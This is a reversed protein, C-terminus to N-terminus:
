KGGLIGEKYPLIISLSKPVITFEMPTEGIIEGGIHVLSPPHSDIKIKKAKYYKVDYYKINRYYLYRHLFFGLTLSLIALFPLKRYICVHLYGDDFCNLSNINLHGNFSIANGVVVLVAKETFSEKEDLQIKM